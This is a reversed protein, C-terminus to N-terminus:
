EIDLDVRTVEGCAAAALKADGKVFILLNQHAKGLKRSARFYQGARLPLTGTPTLLIVENYLHMGADLFAQVTDGVFNRYNGQKDRVDGVVFAAFCDDKLIQASGQIIQRYAVLFEDYTAFASLDDDQDSYVELDYYPPCCIVFDAPPAIVDVDRGDGQEWVPMPTTVIAEAQRVNTDIQEQRIEIGTYPYGMVGAVIGYVSEGAMPNVVTGGPPCFWAYMLESVVPDVVSVSERDFGKSMTLANEGEPNALGQASRGDAGIIGLALWERKRELWYGKRGDLVSFPPAGFTDSMRTPPDTYRDAMNDTDNDPNSSALIGALDDESLGMADMDLDLSGLDDLLEQLKDADFLSLDSTRNLSLSLITAQRDDLEVEVIEATDWGLERMVALRGNGGIVVNTGAQVVLPEVQGFKNLSEKIAALNREPHSRANNPDEVLDGLPMPRVDM